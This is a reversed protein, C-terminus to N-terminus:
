ESYPMYLSRNKNTKINQYELDFYQDIMAHAPAAADHYAYAVGDADYYLGYATLIPAHQKVQLLYDYYPSLEIGATELLTPIVMNLGMDGLDKPELPYNAWILLPVKRLALNLDEATYASEDLDSLFYPSHDGVMCVIVPRDVGSFYDTLSQFAQDSMSISTLFENMAHTQAGYDRQAHVFAHDPHNQDFSAHNQVTLVYMFRPSDEPLAEYWRIANQYVSEDTPYRRAFYGELDTFQGDFYTRDFGLAPYALGRSYNVAPESHCALVQYGLARLHSVISNADTLDLTNFPTVGPLLQMSNSTLLEYESNNTGGGELPVVAYGRLLNDMADINALFPVDTQPETVTRVDYFSENLILVVDPRASGDRATREIAMADMASQNYGDPASVGRLTCYLSEVTCAPYGYQDYAQSWLWGITRLPKVPVDALYGTYLVALSLALLVANRLCLQRFSHREEKIRRGVILCASLMLATLLLLHFIHRDPMFSYSSLVNAATRLNSILLFSLPMGHFKIVFYNIVSLVGCGASFVLCALWVRAFLVTLVACAAGLSALNLLLYKPQMARVHAFFADPFTSYELLCFGFWVIFCALLLRVSKSLFIARLSPSRDKKM